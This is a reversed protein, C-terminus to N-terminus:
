PLWIVHCAQLVTDMAVMHSSLGTGCYRYCGYPKVLKYWWVGTLWITQSANGYYGHCGYPQCAQVMTVMSVMYPKALRVMTNMGVM